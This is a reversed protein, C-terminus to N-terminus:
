EDPYDVTRQYVNSEVTVNHKAYKGSTIERQGYFESLEIEDMTMTISRKEDEWEAAKGIFVGNMQLSSADGGPFIGEPGGFSEAMFETISKKTQSNFVMEAALKSLREDRELSM